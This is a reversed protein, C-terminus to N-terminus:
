KEIERFNGRYKPFKGHIKILHDLNKPFKQANQYYKESIRPFKRAKLFNLIQLNKALM